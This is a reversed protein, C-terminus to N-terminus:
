SGDRVTQLLTAWLHEQTYGEWASLMEAFRQARDTTRTHLLYDIGPELVAREALKRPRTYRGSLFHPLFDIWVDCDHIDGLLDQVHRLAQLAPQVADDFLAEFTELTYRLHKAAIRMAHLEAVNGPDDLSTELALLDALRGEVAHTALAHLAPSAPDAHDKAWPRLADHIARLTRNREQRNLIDILTPQHLRRQQRLYDLLSDIGAAYQADPLDARVSEVYLCQVDLDRAAGLARTLRRVAKKWQAARASPLCESFLALRIRLRRSAVRMRHVHEIDVNVRVGPLEEALARLQTLLAHAAFVCIPTAPKTM